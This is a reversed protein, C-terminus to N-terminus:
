PTAVLESKQVWAEKGNDLRLRAWLVSRGAAKVDVSEVVTVVTNAALRAVLKRQASTDTFVSVARRTKYLMQATPSPSAPADATRASAGAISSTSPQVVNASTTASAPLARTQATASFRRPRENSRLLAFDVQQKANQNGVEVTLQYRMPVPLPLPLQARSPINLKHRFRASQGPQIVIDEVYDNKGEDAIAIWALKERPMRMAEALPIPQGSASMLTNGQEDALILADNDDTKFRVIEVQHRLRAKIDKSGAESPTYHFDFEPVPADNETGPVNVSLHSLRVAATAQVAVPAAASPAAAVVESTSYAAACKRWATVGILVTTGIGAAVGVKNALRRDGTLNKVLNAGIIGVGVGGVTALALNGGVCEEFNKFAKEGTVTHTCATTYSILLALACIKKTRPSLKLM